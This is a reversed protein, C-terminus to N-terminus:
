RTVGARAIVEVLIAHFGKPTMVRCALILLAAGASDRMATIM